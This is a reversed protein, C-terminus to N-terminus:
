ILYQELLTAAHPLTACDSAARMVLERSAGALVDHLRARGAAPALLRVAPTNLGAFAADLTTRAHARRRQIWLVYASLAAWAITTLVAGAMLALTLATM